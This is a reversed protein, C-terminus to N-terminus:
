AKAKEIARLGKLSADYPDPVEWGDIMIWGKFGGRHLMSLSAPIDVHGDGCALHKSTGGDRLTGDCDTLHVYGIQDVGIRELMEHPRGNSGNMLDFHSPDCITKLPSKKAQELIQSLHCETNFVFPPEIEFAVVLGMQEGIRAAESFSKALYGIAEGISSGRLGGGPWMGICDCGLYNALQARGRFHDLWNKREESDPSFAGGAGVQISFIELEYRTYLDLLAQCRSEESLSPYAGNPWGDVLEVGNFGSDHAFRLIEWIPYNAQYKRSGSAFGNLGIATKWSPRSSNAAGKVVFPALALSTASLSCFDRRNM